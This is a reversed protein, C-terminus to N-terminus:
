AAVKQSFDIKTMSGWSKGMALDVPITFVHKQMVLEESLCKKLLRAATMAKAEPVSLLVSDYIQLRLEGLKGDHQRYWRLLGRNLLDAVTAQPEFAIAERHTEGLYGNVGRGFFTRKRGFTTTLWGRQLIAHLVAKWWRPLNPHLQVYANCIRKAEAANITIGTRDADANVNMMFTKWQMGYNLAHNSMKGIARETSTVDAEPKRFINAAAWRHIDAGSKLKKMLPVDDSCAATIWAEAGSLDAEVLVHGPEAVIARRVNYEPRNAAEKKPLNLLNTSALLFTEGGSPRGTETGAPNLWVRIKGDPGPAIRELIEIMTAPKALALLAKVVGSTDHPLNAKLSNEDASPGGTKGVKLPLKLVKYLVTCNQQPSAPNYLWFDPDRWGLYRELVAKSPWKARKVGLAEVRTRLEPAKLKPRFLHANPLGRKLLPLVTAQVEALLPARLAHLDAIMQRRLADDVQLGRELISEFAFSLQLEFDHIARLTM